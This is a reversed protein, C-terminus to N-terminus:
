LIETKINLENMLQARKIRNIALLVAEEKMNEQYHYEGHVTKKADLPCDYEMEITETFTVRVYCYTTTKERTKM